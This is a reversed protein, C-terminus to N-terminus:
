RHTKQPECQTSRVDFEEVLTTLCVDINTVLGRTAYFRVDFLHIRTVTRFPHAINQKRRTRYVCRLEFADNKRCAGNWETEFARVATDITAARLRLLILRRADRPFYTAITDNLATEMPNGRAKDAPASNATVLLFGLCLLIRKM